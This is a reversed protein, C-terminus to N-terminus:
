KASEAAARRRADEARRRRQERMAEGSDFRANPPPANLRGDEIARLGAASLGLEYPLSLAEPGDVCSDLLCTLRAGAPLPAVLSTFLGQDLYEGCQSGLRAGCWHFLLADGAVTGNVLWRMGAALEARYDVTLGLLRVDGGFDEGDAEALDEEDAFAPQANQAALLAVVWLKTLMTAAGRRGARRRSRQRGGHGARERADRAVALGAGWQM